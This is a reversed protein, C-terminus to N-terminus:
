GRQMDQFRLIKRRRLIKGMNKFRGPPNNDTGAIAGGGVANTPADEEVQGSEVLIAQGTFGEVIWNMDDCLIPLAINSQEKMLFLAAAFTSTKSSLGVKGLIRKLNFVLRDFYTMAKKEEPTKANRQKKGDKDILGLKFADTETWPQSLRKVFEYVIFLDVAVAM